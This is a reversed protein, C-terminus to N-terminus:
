MWQSLSSLSKSALLVPHRFIVLRKRSRLTVVSNEFVPTFVRNQVSQQGFSQRTRQRQWNKGSVARETETQRKRQGHLRPCACYRSEPEM